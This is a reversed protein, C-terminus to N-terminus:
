KLSAKDRGVRSQLLSANGVHMLLLPQWSQKATGTRRCEPALVAAAAGLPTAFLLHDALDGIVVMAMASVSIVGTALTSAMGLPRRPLM